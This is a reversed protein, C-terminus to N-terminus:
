LDYEVAAPARDVLTQIANEVDEDTATDPVGIIDRIKAHTELLAKVQDDTDGTRGDKDLEEEIEKLLNSRDGLWEMAKEPKDSLEAPAYIELDACLESYPEAVDAEIDLLALIEDALDADRIDGKRRMDEAFEKLNLSRM